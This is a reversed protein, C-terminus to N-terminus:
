ESIIFKNIEGDQVNVEKRLYGGQKKTDTYYYFGNNRVFNVDWSVNVGIVWKGNPVKHFEFNGQADCQSTKLLNKEEPSLKELSSYGSRIDDFIQNFYENDPHMEVANGACTVVGGGKQTLFAQGTVVNSGTKYEAKNFVPTKYVPYGEKCRYYRGLYSNANPGLRIVAANSNVITARKKFWDNCDEKSGSCQEIKGSEVCPMGDVSNFIGVDQWGPYKLNACGTVLLCSAGIIIKNKM